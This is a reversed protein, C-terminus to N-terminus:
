ILQTIDTRRGSCLRQTDAKWAALEIFTSPKAIDRGPEGARRLAGTYDTESDGHLQGVLWM